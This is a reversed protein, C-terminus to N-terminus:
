IPDCEPPLPYQALPLNSSNLSKELDNVSIPTMGKNKDSQMETLLNQIARVIKTDSCDKAKDNPCYKSM